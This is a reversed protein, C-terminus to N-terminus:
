ALEELEVGGTGDDDMIEFFQKSFLINAKLTEQRETSFAHQTMFKETDINRLFQTDTLGMLKYLRNGEEPDVDIISRLELPM